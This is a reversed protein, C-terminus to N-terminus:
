DYKERLKECALRGAQKGEQVVGEVVGHIRRCNGCLQLWPRSGIKRILEQEPLLGAAIVLTKCPIFEEKGSDPNCIRVGELHHEGLIRTVTTKTRVPLEYGELRKWNRALGGCAEKKEVLAAIAIGAKLLQWAMMLGVDGSGLIMAPGEPVFGGLNMDRQLEGATYVGSPRTGAINMSGATIERCGSALIMEKFEIEKLGFDPSSLVARRNEDVSIVTTNWLFCVNKPFDTMLGDIYEPGTLESGFGPHICQRLIGGPGAMRDVLLISGAGQEAAARAASLGAAGGGVIFLDCSEM